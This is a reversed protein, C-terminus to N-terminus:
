FREHVGAREASLQFHRVVLDAGGRELGHCEFEGCTVTLWLM